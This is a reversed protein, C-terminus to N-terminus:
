FVMSKHFPLPIVAGGVKFINQLLLFPLLNYGM